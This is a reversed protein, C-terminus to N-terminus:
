PREDELAEETVINCTETDPDFVIAADGQDLQRRTV